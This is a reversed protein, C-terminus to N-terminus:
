NPLEALAPDLDISFSNEISLRIFAIIDENPIGLGAARSLRVTDLSGLFYLTLAAKAQGLPFSMDRGKDRALERVLDAVLATLRDLKEELGVYGAAESLLISILDVDEFLSPLVRYIILAIKREATPALSLILTLGDFFEAWGEEVVSHIVAEKNEFYTYISGVPLGTERALDSISAGHFGHEAFLRKASAMIALRKSEDKERAM